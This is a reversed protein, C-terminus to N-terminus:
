ARRRPRASSNRAAVAGISGSRCLHTLRSERLLLCPSGLKPRNAAELLALSIGATRQGRALPRKFSWAM